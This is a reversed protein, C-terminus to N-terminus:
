FVGFTMASVMSKASSATAGGLRRLLEIKQLPNLHSGDASGGSSGSVQPPAGMVGMAKKVWAEPNTYFELQAQQLTDEKSPGTIGYSSSAEFAKQISSKGMDMGGTFRANKAVAMDMFDAPPEKKMAAQEAKIERDVSATARRRNLARTEDAQEGYATTGFNLGLLGGYKERRDRQSLPVNSNPHLETANLEAEKEAIREDRTGKTPDGIGGTKKVLNVGMQAVFGILLGALQTLGMILQPIIPILAMALARVAKALYGGLAEIVPRLQVGFEYMLNTIEIVVPQLASGILAMLNDLVRNYQDMLGPNVLSVFKSIKNVIDLFGTLPNSLANDITSVVSSGLENVTKVMGTSVRQVATDLSLIRDSSFEVRANFAALGLELRKFFGLIGTAVFVWKILVGITNMIADIFGKFPAILFGVLNMVIGSIGGTLAGTLSNVVSKGIMGLIGSSKAMVSKTEPQKDKAEKLKTSVTKFVDEFPKKTAGRNVAENRYQILENFLKAASKAGLTFSPGLLDIQDKLAKWKKTEQAFANDLAKQKAENAKKTKEAVSQQHKLAEDSAQKIKLQGKAQDTFDLAKSVKLNKSGKGYAATSADNLTNTLNHVISRLKEFRRISKDTINTGSMLETFYNQATKKAKNYNKLAINYENIKADETLKTEYNARKKIMEQLQKNEFQKALIPSLKALRKLKDEVAYIGKQSPVLTKMFRQHTTDLKKYLDVAKKNTDLQKNVIKDTDEKKVQSAYQAKLASLDGGFMKPSFPDLKSLRTLRDEFSHIQKVTIKTSNRLREFATDISDELTDIKSQKAAAKKADAEDKAAQKVTKAKDKITNVYKDFGEFTGPPLEELAEKSFKRFRMFMNEFADAMGQTVKRGDHAREIFKDMKETLNGLAKQTLNHKLTANHPDSSKGTGGGGMKSNIAETLNKLATALNALIDTGPPTSGGGPGNPDPITIGAGSM